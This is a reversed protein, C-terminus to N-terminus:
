QSLEEQILLRLDIVFVIDMSVVNIAVVGNNYVGLLLVPVEPHFSFSEVLFPSLDYRQCNGEGVLVFGFQSASVQTLMLLYLHNNNGNNSDLAVALLDWEPSYKLERVRARLTTKFVLDLSLVFDSPSDEKAEYILLVFQGTTKDTGQIAWFYHCEEGGFDEKFSLTYHIDEVRSHPLDALTISQSSSYTSDM